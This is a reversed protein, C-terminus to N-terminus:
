FKQEIMRPEAQGFQGRTAAFWLPQILICLGPPVKPDAKSPTSSFTCTGLLVTTVLRGTEGINNACIFGAPRLPTKGDSALWPFHSLSASGDCRSRAVQLAAEPESVIDHLLGLPSRIPWRASWRATACSRIKSRNTAFTAQDGNRRWGHLTIVPFQHTAPIQTGRQRQYRRWAEGPPRLPPPVGPGCRAAQGACRLQGSM